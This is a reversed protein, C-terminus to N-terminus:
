KFPKCLYVLLGSEKRKFYHVKEFCMNMTRTGIGSHGEPAYIEGCFSYFDPIVKHAIEQRKQRFLLVYPVFCGRLKNGSDGVLFEINEGFSQAFFIEKSNDRENGHEYANKVAETVGYVTSRLFSDNAGIKELDKKIRRVIGGLDLGNNPIFSRTKFRVPIEVSHLTSESLDLSGGFPKRALSRPNKLDMIDLDLNM